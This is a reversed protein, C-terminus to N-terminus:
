CSKSSFLGYNLKKKLEAMLVLAPLQENPIRSHVLMEEYKGILSKRISILKMVALSVDTDCSFLCMKVIRRLVNVFKITQFQAFVIYSENSNLFNM